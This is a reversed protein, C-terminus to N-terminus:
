GQNTLASQWTGGIERLAELLANKQANCDALENELSYKDKFEEAHDIFSKIIIELTDLKHVIISIKEENTIM